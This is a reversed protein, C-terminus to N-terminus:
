AHIWTQNTLFGHVIMNFQTITSLDARITVRLAEAGSLILPKCKDKPSWTMTFLDDDGTGAFIHINGGGSLVSWDGNRLMQHGDVLDELVTTGDAAIIEVLPGTDDSLAALAGFKDMTIATNGDFILLDVACIIATKDAGPSYNFPIVPDAGDVNMEHSDGSDVLHDDILRAGPIPLPANFTIPWRWPDLSFSRRTEEFDGM